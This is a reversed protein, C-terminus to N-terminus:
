AIDYHTTTPSVIDIADCHAILTDINTYRTIGFEAVTANAQTDDPDFFGILTTNEIEKWQRIHIKGLHGAGFVGIKLM